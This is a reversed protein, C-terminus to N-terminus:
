QIEIRRPKVAEALPLRLSLVGDELKASVAEANIEVNLQLRLRYDGRTREEYLPRWGKPVTDSRTGIVTLQDDELSVSLNNKQVGPMVVGVEYADEEQRVTYRPKLFYETKAEGNVAETAGHTEKLETDTM